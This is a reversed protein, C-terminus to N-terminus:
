QRYWASAKYKALGHQSLVLVIASIPLALLIGFFGFWGGFLILAFIVLVPHLGIREGVLKPTLFFGELLQGSFYLILVSIIQLNGGQLAASLTALCCAVTFGVYPILIAVGTLIGLAVAGAVGIAHLGIAYYIALLTIVLMQGRLYQSLLDDIESCIQSIELSYRPPIISKIRSIFADWQALLYFMVFMILVFSLLSTLLNQGSSLITGITTTILNDTNNSIHASIKEQSIKQIDTWSLDIPLRDLLPTLTEQIQKLWIPLQNRLAPIEKQLISALLLSLGLILSFGLFITFIAALNKPIGIGQLRTAVPRLAYALIFAALFTTLLSAM